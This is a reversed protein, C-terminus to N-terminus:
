ISKAGWLLLKTQHKCAATVVKHADRSHFLIALAFFSFRRASDPDLTLPSRRSITFFRIKQKGDTLEFTVLGLPM